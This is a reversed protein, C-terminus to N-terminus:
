DEKAEPAQEGPHVVAPAKKPEPAEHKKEEHKKEEHHDKAM